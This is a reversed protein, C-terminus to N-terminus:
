DLEGRYDYVMDNITYNENHWKEVAEIEAYIPNYEEDNLGLTELYDYFCNIVEQHTVIDPYPEHNIIRHQLGLAESEYVQYDPTNIMGNLTLHKEEFNPHILPHCECEACKLRASIETYNICNKCDNKENM